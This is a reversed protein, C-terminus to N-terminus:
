LRKKVMVGLVIVGLVVFVGRMLLTQVNSGILVGHVTALWFAVYNLYHLLKWKKGIPKRMKAALAALGILYWAPRGGLSFFGYWSKVDPIFVRLSYAKWAVLVPHLTILSFGTISIIHHVKLFPKGFFRRMERIYASSVIAGFVCFYGALALVRIAWDIPRGGPQIFEVLLVFVLVAAGIAVLYWVNGQKSQKKM